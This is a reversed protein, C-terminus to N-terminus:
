RGINKRVRWINDNEKRLVALYNNLQSKKPLIFGCEGLINLIQKPKVFVDDIFIDRIKDKMEDSM